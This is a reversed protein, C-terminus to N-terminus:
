ANWGGDVNLNEGNIFASEPHALFAVAAAIEEPKGYRGISTLKKQTEAMPGDAPNMATDIPGPQVSNVTVGTSGLDRSWGRTLGNVAFKTGCYLAMGPLPVREGLGSGINIIRGWGAGTMRRAAERSLQFVARVNLNFQDDFQEDTSELLSGFVGIGACNVLVDLRGAFRGGFAPDIQSLLVGPGDPRTLDAGIAEAERGARTIERVVADARDRSTAYHVLVTAGDAALCPPVSGVRRVLSLLSSEM